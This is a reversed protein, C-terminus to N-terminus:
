ADDSGDAPEDKLADEASRLRREIAGLEIDRKEGDDLFGKHDTALTIFIPGYFEQVAGMEGSAVRKRYMDLDLSREELQDQAVRFRDANRRDLNVTSRSAALASYATAIVGLGAVVAFRPEVMALLGAVATLTSALFVASTSRRLAMGAGDEHERGRDRFYDIQNELLFRRTYELVLLQNFPADTAEEMIVKFYELRKAEARARERSWKEALNGDRAQSIWMAALGGSVVGALGIAGVVWRGAVEGVMTQLGVAVLILAGLAAALFVAHNAKAVTNKFDDRAKVARDNLEEYKKAHGIPRSGHLLDALPTAKEKFLEAHETPVIKWDFDPDGDGIAERAADVLEHPNM